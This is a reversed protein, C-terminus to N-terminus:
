PPTAGHVRPLLLLIPQMCRTPRAGSGNEPGLLSVWRCPEGVYDFALRLLVRWGCIVRVMSPREVAHALSFPTRPVLHFTDRHRTSFLLCRSDAPFWLNRHLTLTLLHYFPPSTVESEAETWRQTRTDKQGHM